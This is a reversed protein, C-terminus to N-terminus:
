APNPDTNPDTVNNLDLTKIIVVYDTWSWDVRISEHHGFLELSNYTKNTLCYPHYLCSIGM